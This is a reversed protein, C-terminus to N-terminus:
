AWETPFYINLLIRAKFGDVKVPNNPKEKKKKVQKYKESLDQEDARKLPKLRDGLWGYKLLRVENM